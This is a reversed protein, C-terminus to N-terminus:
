HCCLQLSVTQTNFNDSSGFSRIASPYNALSHYKYTTMLFLKFKHLLVSGATRTWAKSLGRAAAERPLEMTVWCQCTKSSFLHLDKSVDICTMTLGMLTLDTQTCLKGLAHWKALNFAM